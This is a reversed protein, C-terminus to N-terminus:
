NIKIIDKFRFIKKIIRENEKNLRDLFIAINKPQTFKTKACIYYIM